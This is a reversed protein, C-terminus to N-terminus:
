GSDQSRQVDVIYDQAFLKFKINETRDTPFFIKCYRGQSLTTLILHSLVYLINLVAYLLCQLHAARLPQIAEGM